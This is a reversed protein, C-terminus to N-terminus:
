TVDRATLIGTSSAHEIADPRTGFPNDHRVGLECAAAFFARLATFQRDVTAGRVGSSERETRYESIVEATAMLAAVDDGYWSLFAKLDSSYAARTNASSYTSLWAEAAQELTVDIRLPVQRM